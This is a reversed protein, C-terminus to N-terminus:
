MSVLTLRLYRTFSQRYLYCKGGKVPKIILQNSFIPEEHQVIKGTEIQLYAYKDEGSKMGIDESFTTVIDFQKM